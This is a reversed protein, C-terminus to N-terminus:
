YATIIPAPNWMGSRQIGTTDIEATKADPDLPSYQEVGGWDRDWDDRLYSPITRSARTMEIWGLPGGGYRDQWLSTMIAGPRDPLIRYEPAEAVGTRHDFPRQCPFALGVAWDIMVPADSGIVDNLTQTRPVRPPTVALWQQPDSDSDSAGTIISQATPSANGHWRGNSWRVPTASAGSYRIRGSRGPAIM